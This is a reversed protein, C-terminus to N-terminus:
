ALKDLREEIDSLVPAGKETLCFRVMVDTPDMGAPVSVIMSNSDFWRVADKALKIIQYSGAQQITARTQVSPSDFAEIFENPKKKAINLLNYRIESVPSDISIKFYIAIPLLDNIDKDRVLAVAENLKFEKELEKEADRKKNVLRFTSGGNQSNGPHKELFEKLNPKDFPVFIRGNEFVVSKRVANESQEDRWISPENPCYRMERVTSADKDFVTVGKQPLMFVVGGGRIIEYESNASQNIEKRKITRKKTQPKPAETKPTAPIANATAAKPRGPSKKITTESMILNNQQIYNTFITLWGSQSM